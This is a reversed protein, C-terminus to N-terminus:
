RVLGLTVPERATESAEAAIDLAERWAANLRGRETASGRWGFFAVGYLGLMAAAREYIADASSTGVIRAASRAALTGGLTDM